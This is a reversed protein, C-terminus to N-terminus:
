ATPRWSTNSPDSFLYWTTGNSYLPQMSPSLTTDRCLVMGYVHTAPSPLDAYAYVPTRVSGADQTAQIYRTAGNYLIPIYSAAAVATTAGTLQLTGSTLSYGLGNTGNSVNWASPATVLGTLGTPDMAAMVSTFYFHVGGEFPTKDSTLLFISVADTYSRLKVFIRPRAASTGVYAVDIIATSGEGYWSLSTKVSGKHQAYITTKGGGYATSNPAGTDNAADYHGTGVCEIMVTQGTETFGLTGLEYWVADATMNSIKYPSSLYSYGLSGIIKTGKQTMEYHGREYVSNVYSPIIGDDDMDSTYGSLDTNLGGGTAYRCQIEVLKCYQAASDNTSNEQTVNQLVWGGQSIDFANENKDFWVNYMMSQGARIASIVYEGTHGSFNCNSIEIATSHDWAGPSENSWTIWAFAAKGRYSYIQDFKTDITDKCQFIRGGADTAVFSKVRVYAGRTVTNIVFPQVTGKGDFHLNSFEMRRSKFRFMPTTETASVPVITISPIVGYATEPGILKFTPIETDGLDLTSLAIKGSPLRVGPGYTVHISRSWNHMNLVAPMDDTVGDMKAGFDCVTLSATSEYIRKWRKGSPTVIVTGGDDVSTTDTSDYSFFGGGSPIGSYYSKVNVFSILATPETSRLAAVSSLILAAAVARNAADVATNESTKSNTESVKANAASTVSLVESAKSNTESTKSNVESTKSNTESILAASASTSAINANTAVSTESAKANVESTKSNTESVKANAASTGAATEKAIYDALTGTYGADKALEYSSKGNTGSKAPSVYYGDNTKTLANDQQPDLKLDSVTGTIEGSIIVDGNVKLDSNLEM